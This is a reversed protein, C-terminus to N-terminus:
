NFLGGIATEYPLVYPFSKDFPDINSIGLLYLVLLNSCSGLLRYSQDDKKIKNTIIYLVYLIKCINNQRLIKLETDLRRRKEVTLKKNSLLDLIKAYYVGEQDKTSVLNNDTKM